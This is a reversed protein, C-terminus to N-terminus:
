IDDFYLIPGDASAKMIASVEFRTPVKDNVHLVKAESKMKKLLNRMNM